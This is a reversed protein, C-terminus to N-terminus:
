FMFRVPLQNLIKEVRTKSLALKSHISILELDVIGVNQWLGNRDICLLSKPGEWMNYYGVKLVRVAEYKKYGHKIYTNSLIRAYFKKQKNSYLM